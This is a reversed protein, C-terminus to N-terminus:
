RWGFAAVLVAVFLAVAGVAALIMDIRKQM